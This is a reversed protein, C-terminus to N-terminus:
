NNGIQDYLDKNYKELDSLKNVVFNDKDFIFANLKKDFRATITDILAAQNQADQKQIFETQAKQKQFNNCMTVGFAVAIILLVALILGYYKKIFAWAIM